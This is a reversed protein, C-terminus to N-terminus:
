NMEIADTKLPPWFHHETALILDSLSHEIWKVRINDNACRLCSVEKLPIYASFFLWYRTNCIAAIPRLRNLLAAESLIPM